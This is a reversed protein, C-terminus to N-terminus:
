DNNAEQKLWLEECTRCSNDWHSVCWHSDNMRIYNCLGRDGFNRLLEEDSMARIKDANTLHREEEKEPITLGIEGYGFRYAM